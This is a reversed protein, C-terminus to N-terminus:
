EVGSCTTNFTYNVPAGTYATVSGSVPLPSVSGGCDPDGKCTKYWGAVPNGMNGGLSDQGYGIDACTASYSYGTYVNFGPTHVTLWCLKNSNDKLNQPVYGVQVCQQTNCNLTVGRSHATLVLGFVLAYFCGSRVRLSFRQFVNM